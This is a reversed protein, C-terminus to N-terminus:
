FLTEDESQQSLHIRSDKITKHIFGSMQSTERYEFITFRRPSTSRESEPIERVICKTEASAENDDNSM